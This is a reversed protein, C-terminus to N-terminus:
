IARPPVAPQAAARTVRTPMSARAKASASTSPAARDAAKDAKYRKLVESPPICDGYGKGGPLEQANDPEDVQAWANIIPDALHRAADPGALASERDGVVPMKFQRLLPLIPGGGRGVEATGGWLGIYQNVGVAEFLEANRPSQLWVARMFYDPSTSPGLSYHKYFAPSGEWPLYTDQASTQGAVALAVALAAVRWLRHSRLKSGEM